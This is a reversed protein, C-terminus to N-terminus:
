CWFYRDCGLTTIQDRSISAVDSYDHQILCPSNSLEHHLRGSITDGEVRGIEAWCSMGGSGFRVFCGPALRGLNEETAAVFGQNGEGAENVNVADGLENGTLDLHNLDVDAAAPTNDEDPTNVGM